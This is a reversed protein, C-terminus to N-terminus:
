AGLLTKKATSADSEAGFPSTLLTSKSGKFRKVRDDEKNVAQQVDAQTAQSAQTPAQPVPPPAAPTKAQKSGGFICM